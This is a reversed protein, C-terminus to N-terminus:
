KLSNVAVVKSLLETSKQQQQQQTANGAATLDLVFLTFKLSGRRKELREGKGERLDGEM